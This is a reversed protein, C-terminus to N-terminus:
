GSGGNVSCMRTKFKCFTPGTSSGEGGGTGDADESGCGAEDMDSSGAGRCSLAAMGAAGDRRRLTHDIGTTPVEDVEEWM